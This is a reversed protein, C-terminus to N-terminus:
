RRVKLGEELVYLYNEVPMYSTLSNGTGLVWYGDYFCKEIMERAYARIEEETGRCIKDVDLGGIPTVKHGYKRKFQDVPLIVDEFSHKADIKVDDILEDYITELNGCSHLIFPKGADHAGQVMMKYIPFVYQRLHGPALFTSTKFGLDDGQRLAGVGDMQALQRIASAHLNGVKEFVTAVLEPDTYIAMALGEVGLMRSVWEYPGGGPGAIMKVGEPLLKQVYEYHCFDVPASEAPWPYKEVDEMSRFVAQVESGFSEKGEDQNPLPCNLPVEIPVCDFGMGLWFDVYIEWYGSDTPQMEEFRTGTRRAVFNPTTVLEFFPLYDPKGQRRLVKLFQNFDPQRQLATSM